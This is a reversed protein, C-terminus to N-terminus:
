QTTQNLSELPEPTAWNWDLNWFLFAAAFALLAVSRLLMPYGYHSVILGALAASGIGVVSSTLSQATSTTSRDVEPIATMALAYITPGALYLFAHLLIFEAIVATSLISHSLLFLMAGAGCQIAIITRKAGLLRHFVPTGITGVVQLLQSIAFIEGVHPLSIGVNHVMFIYAFPAFAAAVSGWVGFAILFSTLIRRGKCSPQSFHQTPATPSALLRSRTLPFAGLTVVACALALIIRMANTSSTALHDRILIAPLHGGIVGALVGSGIGLGFNLGFGFSRNRETTLRALAVPTCIAWGCMTVGFLFSALIQAGPTISFVRLVGAVPAVIVCIVLLPRLGYRRAVMGSPFTAVLGGLTFVSSFLGIQAENFRLDALYLNFLFFFLGFGFDFFISGSLFHWYARNLTLLSSEGRAEISAPVPMTAVQPLDLDTM